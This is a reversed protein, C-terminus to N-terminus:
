WPSRTANRYSHLIVQITGQHGPQAKIWIRRLNRVKELSFNGFKALLISGDTYPPNEFGPDRFRVGILSASMNDLEVFAVDKGPKDATVQANAVDALDIALWDASDYASRQAAIGAIEFDRGVSM